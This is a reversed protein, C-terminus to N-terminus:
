IHILSLFLVAAPPRWDGLYGVLIVRRRRQPVGFYQADLVRYAFGYGCEVLAGLIAGFDRGGNSSLVGPVNEWVIWPPQLDLATQCFRLALNGRDDGLGGRLGAVSFSQCPTGAVLCQIPGSAAARELFDDSTMDGLNPTNPWHHNLVANPFPEIESVWGCDWGLPEWALTAAEVGSCVSGYRM